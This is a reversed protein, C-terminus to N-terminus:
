RAGGFIVLTLALIEFVSLMLIAGVFNTTLFHFDNTKLQITKM